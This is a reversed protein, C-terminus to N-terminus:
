SSYPQSAETAKRQLVLVAGTHVRNNGKGTKIAMATERFCGVLQLRLTSPWNYLAGLLGPRLGRSYPQDVAADENNIHERGTTQLFGCRLILVVSPGRVNRPMGPLAGLHTGWTTLSVKCWGWHGVANDSRAWIQRERRGHIPLIKAKAHVAAALYSRHNSRRCLTVGVPTGYYCPYRARQGRQM